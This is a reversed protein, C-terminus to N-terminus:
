IYYFDDDQTVPESDHIEEQELQHMVEGWRRRATRSTASWGRRKADELLKTTCEAPMRGHQGRYARAADLLPVLETAPRGVERQDNLPVGLDYAAARVEEGLRLPVDSVVYVVDASAFRGVAQVIEAWSLFSCAMAMKTGDDWGWTRCSQGGHSFRQTAGGPTIEETSAGLVFHAFARIAHAPPRFTGLVVGVEVPSEARFKNVGRAAGFHGTGAWAHEAKLEDELDLHTILGLRQGIHRRAIARVAEIARARSEANGLKTTSSDVDHYRVIRTPPITAGGVVEITRGLLGEYVERSGTADLAVVASDAPLGVRWALTTVHEIPDVLAVPAEEPAGRVWSSWSILREIKPIGVTALVEQLFPTPRPVAWPRLEDATVTLILQAGASIQHLHAALDSLGRLWARSEANDITKCLRRIAQSMAALAGLEFAERPVLVDAPSEEFVITRGPLLAQGIETAMRKGTMVVVRADPADRIARAYDCSPKWDCGQCLAVPAPKDRGRQRLQRKAAPSVCADHIRPIRIARVRLRAFAKELEIGFEHTQTVLAFMGDSMAVHHTVETSKGSGCGAPCLGGEGPKLGRALRNRLAAIATGPEQMTLDSIVKTHAAHRIPSPLGSGPCFGCRNTATGCAALYEPLERGAARLEEALKAALRACSAAPARYIAESVKGSYGALRDLRGIEELGVDGLQILVGSFLRWLERSWGRRSEQWLRIMAMVLCGRYIADIQEKSGEQRVPHRRLSGTRTGTPSKQKSSMKGSSPSPTATPLWPRAFAAAQAPTDGARRRLVYQHVRRVALELVAYQVKMIDPISNRWATWEVIERTGAHLSGPMMTQAGASRLEVVMARAKAVATNRGKPKMNPDSLQITEGPDAVLYLVHSIGVSPRGFRASDPLLSLAEPERAEACDLDVDVLALLDGSGVGMLVGIGTAARAEM